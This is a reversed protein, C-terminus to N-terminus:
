PQEDRVVRYAQTFALKGGDIEVRARVYREEGGLHYAAPAGAGPQVRALVRGGAGIFAVRAGPQAPWVSLTDATVAIRRLEAGSSAYLRGKALAACIAPATAENAFVQVWGRGPRAAPDRHPGIYHTDDVAVGAFDDGRTLVDDWLAEESPHRADGDGHVFPHGSWIELLQAGRASPIDDATLAWIFNPHNVMAVAGQARVQSVAWRLAEAATAFKELAHGPMDGIVRKSCLANVHVPHFRPPQEGAVAMTIEEGPLIVFGPREISRHEEPPTLQNHDTVAVFNYGHDRYWRYSDEPPRDGDSRSTHTHLNGRQFTAM